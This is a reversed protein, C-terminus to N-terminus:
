ANQLKLASPEPEALNHYKPVVAKHRSRWEEVGGSRWEEVGGSRWEEVERSRWEEVGGGGGSRGRRWEEVERSRGRWGL